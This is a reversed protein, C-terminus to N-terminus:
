QAPQHCNLCSGVPRGEHDPPAPVINGNPDHCQLCNDRGELSHPIAPAAGVPPATASPTAKPTGTPTVEPVSTTPVATATVAAPSPTVTSSAPSTSTTTPTTPQHCDQCSGVPRGEHDPPAPVINGNPDHCQLCNEHGELSHPIAPAAVVPPATASPTAKPTSTPLVDPASTTARVTVTVAAPQTPTPSAQPTSTALPLIPQHCSTCIDRSYDTHNEPFPLVQDLGHCIRCNTDPGIPHPIPPPGGQSPV